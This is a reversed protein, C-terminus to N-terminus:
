AKTNATSVFVISIAPFRTEIETGTRTRVDLNAVL